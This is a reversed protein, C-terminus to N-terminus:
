WNYSLTLNTKRVATERLKSRLFHPIREYGDYKPFVTMYFYTDKYTVKVYSRQVQIMSEGLVSLRKEPIHSMMFM